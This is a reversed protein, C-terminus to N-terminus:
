TSCVWPMGRSFISATGCQRSLSSNSGSSRSTMSYASAIVWVGGVTSSSSTFLNSSWRSSACSTSSVASTQKSFTRDRNLEATPSVPEGDRTGDQVFSIDDMTLVYLAYHRAAALAEVEPSRYGLYREHWISTALADTDCVLLPGSHRAAADEDAQQQTAIGVFDDTRWDHPAGTAM